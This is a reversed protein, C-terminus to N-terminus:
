AVEPKQRWTHLRKGHCLRCLKMRGGVWTRGFEAAAKTTDCEGCHKEPETSIEPEKALMKARKHRRKADRNQEYMARKRCPECRLQTTSNPKYTESCDQCTATEPTTYGHTREYHAAKVCRVSCYRTGPRKGIIPGGCKVFECIGPTGETRPKARSKRPKPRGKVAPARKVKAPKKKAALKRLVEDTTAKVPEPERKPRPAPEVYSPQTYRIVLPSAGPTHTPEVHGPCWSDCGDQPRRKCRPCSAVPTVEPAPRRESYGSVTIGQAQWIAEEAMAKRKAKEKDGWAAVKCVNGCYVGTPTKKAFEIGCQRCTAQGFDIGRAM